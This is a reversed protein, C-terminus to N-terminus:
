TEILIKQEDNRDSEVESPHVEKARRARYLSGEISTIIIEEGVKLEGDDETPEVMVYHTNGNEDRLKAQTSHGRRAAGLVIEASRGVFSAASVADTEDQPIIKEVISASYHLSPISAIFAILSALSASMMSGFLSLAALQIMYGAISFSALLLFLLIGTPVKGLRLWVLFDGLGFGHSIDLDADLDADLDLDFDFDPFISDSLGSLGLGFLMGLGEIALLALVIGLAVGFPLNQAATLFELNL